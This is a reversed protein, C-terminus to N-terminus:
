GSDGKGQNEISHKIQQENVGITSIFYDDFWIGDACYTCANSCFSNQELGRATDTKLICILPCINVTPPISLLHHIHDPRKADHNVTKLDILPYYKRIEVTKTHLYASVEDNLWEHRYKTTIVISNDYYYLCHPPKIFRISANHERLLPNSSAVGDM